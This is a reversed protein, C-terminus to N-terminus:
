GPGTSAVDEFKVGKAVDGGPFFVGPRVGLLLGMSSPGGRPKPTPQEYPPPPTSTQTTSTTAGAPPVVVAPGSVGQQLVLEVSKVEKEKVETELPSATGWGTASAAIRYTGPNVPRAIGVLETPMQKDNVSIQLNQLSQPEPKVTVR